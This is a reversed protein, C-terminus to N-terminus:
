VTLIENKTNNVQTNKLAQMWSDAETPTDARLAYTRTDLFYFIIQSLPLYREQTVIQFSCQAEFSGGHEPGRLETVTRLDISAIEEKDNKFYTLTRNKLAFWRRKWTQFHFM